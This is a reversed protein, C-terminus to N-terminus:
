CTGSECPVCQGGYCKGKFLGDFDNDCFKGDDDPGCGCKFFNYSTIFHQLQPLWNQWDVLALLEKRVIESGCFEECGSEGTCYGEDKFLSRALKGRCKEPISYSCDPYLAPDGCVVQDPYEKTGVTYNWEGGCINGREDDCYKKKEELVFEEKSRVDHNVILAQGYCGPRPDEFCVKEEDKVKWNVDCCKHTALFPNIEEKEGGWYYNENEDLVFKYKYFENEDEPIFPYPHEVNVHPVCEKVKVDVMKSDSKNYKECYTIAFTLNLKGQNTLEWFHSFEGTGLKERWGGLDIGYNEIDCGRHTDTWPLSFCSGSESIILPKPLEYRFKEEGKSDYDLIIAIPEDNTLSNEPWSATIFVPDENSVDYRYNQPFCESYSVFGKEDGCFVTYNMGLSVDTKMPRDVLIRVRQWDSLGHKDIARATLNYWGDGFSSIFLEKDSVDESAGAGAFEQIAKEVDGEGEFSYNVEDEDPDLAFLTINVAGMPGDDEAIVLYDYGEEDCSDREVYDLAPPRNQRAFQFTYLVDGIIGKDVKFWFLDDGRENLQDKGFEIALKGYMDKKMTWSKGDGSTFIFSMLNEELYNFDVFSWDLKVPYTVASELLKKFDSVYFFDFEALHFFDEGALSLSLPYNVEIKIGDSLIDLDIELNETTIKVAPSINTKTFNEVCWITKNILFRKLDREIARIDMGRKGFKIPYGPVISSNPYKYKCFDPPEGDLCPYQNDPLYVGKSIGYSINEGFYTAGSTGEVFDVMGGPQGRWIRGQKGVLKLGKELEDNLCDEVYLRLGEKKFLKGLISEQEEELKGVKVEKVLQFMLIAVFLIVLGLIIFVTIQGKKM